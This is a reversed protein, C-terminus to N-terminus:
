DFEHNKYYNNEINIRIIMRKIKRYTIKHKANYIIM